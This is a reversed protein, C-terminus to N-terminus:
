KEEIKWNPFHAILDDYTDLDRHIPLLSFAVNQQHCINITEELVTSTGWNIQDFLEAKPAQLGVLYYGGDEAPGLVVPVNSLKEFAQFLLDNTLSPCDSGILLMRKFGLAYCEEFANHMREGLNNGQQIKSDVAIKSLPSGEDNHESFYVIKQSSLSEITAATMAVLNHHIALAQEEGIVKALRTKVQGFRANKTFIILLDNM